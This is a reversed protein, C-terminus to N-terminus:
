PQKRLIRNGKILKSRIYSVIKHGVGTKSVIKTLKVMLHYIGPIVIGYRLNKVYLAFITHTLPWVSIVTSVRSTEYYLYHKSISVVPQIATVKSATAPPAPPPLVRCLFHFTQANWNPTPYIDEWCTAGIGRRFGNDPHDYGIFNRISGNPYQYRLLSESLAKFDVEESTLGSADLLSNCIMGAGAVFIPYRHFQGRRIRHGWLGTEADRMRNLFGVARAAADTWMAWGQIQAVTAIGRLALGTYLPIHIESELDSYPFSGRCPGDTEQMALIREGVMQVLELHQTTRRYSDLKVLAELAISNMNVIFRDQGAYYDVPNMVFGTLEHRYLKGIIYQELNTEAVHLYRDRRVDQGINEIAAATDLLACDALANHVLSSFRDDEHGAWRFRGNAELRACQADALQLANDLWYACNSRRYLHLLGLIVAQQTWPTDHIAFLRKLNTRHVVPGNVGGDQSLWSSLYSWLAAIERGQNDALNVTAPIM